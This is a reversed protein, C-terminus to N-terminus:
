DYTLARHKCKTGHGECRRPAPLQRCRERREQDDIADQKREALSKLTEADGVDRTTRVVLDSGRNAQSPWAGSPRQSPTGDTRAIVRPQFRGSCLRGIGNPNRLVIARSPRNLGDLAMQVSLGDGYPTGRLFTRACGGYDTPKLEESLWRFLSNGGATAKNEGYITQAFVIQNAAFSLM